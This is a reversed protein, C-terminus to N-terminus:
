QLYWTAELAVSRPPAPIAVFSGTDDDVGFFTGNGLPADDIFTYHTEDTLNKGILALRWNGSVDGVSLQANFLWTADQKTQPDLDGAMFHDDRFNADLTANLGLQEGLPASFSLGFAGSWDPAQIVTKGKLDQSCGNVTGNERWFANAQPQNCPAEDYQDYSYDLYALSAFAQLQETLAFRSDLEFGQSTAQAANSVNFGVAGDFQSVQLNDITSHFLTANLELRNELLTTRVGLEFADITEDGYELTSLDDGNVHINDWGGSKFGRTGSLYVMTDGNPYWEFTLSPSWQKETRSQNTEYPVANQTERWFLDLVIDDATGPVLPRRNIDALVLRKDLQKEEFTYRLGVKVTFQDTANWNGHVFASATDTSQDFHTLRFGDALTPLGISSLNFFVDSPSSIFSARQLYVGAIYDITGGTPSAIRIDQSWQDFDEQADAGILTVPSIDLDKLDKVHFDTYGTISTLTYEGFEYELQYLANTYDNKTDWDITEGQFENIVSTEFADGSPVNTFQPPVIDLHSFLPPAGPGELQTNVLMSYPAGKMEDRSREFKFRMTLTDTADWRLIARAGWQDSVPGASGTAENDVYGDAARIIASLRGSLTDTIPGSLAAEVKRQEDTGYLATLNGSLEETPKATHMSIAGAITNKGFLTTQPGKLVEVRDLDFLPIVTQRARGMYIDDIFMGVSQEFGPNSASGIGRIRAESGLITRGQHYTPVYHSLEELGTIDADAIKEGSLVNVTVSVDQLSESRKQATVRVEELVPASIAVPGLALMALPLLRPALPPTSM